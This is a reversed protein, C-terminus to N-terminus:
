QATVESTVAEAIEAVPTQATPESMKALTNSLARMETHLRELEADTDKLYARAESSRYSIEAQKQHLESFKKFIEEKTMPRVKKQTGALRQKFTNM